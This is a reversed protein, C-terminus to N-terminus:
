SSSVARRRALSAAALAALAILAGAIVWSRPYAIESWPDTGRVIQVFPAAGVALRAAVAVLVSAGQLRLWGLALGLLLLQPIARLDLSSSAFLVATALVVAAERMSSRLLGFLAGRFFLEQTIPLVVFVSLALGLRSSREILAQAAELTEPDDYPLRSTVLDDVSSLLPAISLGAVIALMLQLPAPSALGSIARLSGRPAHLSAVALVVISTALVRCATANVIDAFAGPRIADTLAGFSPGLLALAMTWMAAAVATM